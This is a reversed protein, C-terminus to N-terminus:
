AFADAYLSVNAVANLDIDAIVPLRNGQQLNTVVREELSHRLNQQCNELSSGVGSAGPCAPVEGYYCGDDQLRYTATDMAYNLYESLM